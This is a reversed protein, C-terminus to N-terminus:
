LKSMQMFAPLQSLAAQAGEVSSIREKLNLVFSREDEKLNSGMQNVAFTDIVEGIEFGLLSLTNDDGKTSAAYTLTHYLFEYFEERKESLPRKNAFIDHAHKYGTIMMAEHHFVNIVTDLHTRLAQTKSLSSIDGYLDYTERLADDFSTWVSQLQDNLSEREAADLPCQYAKETM